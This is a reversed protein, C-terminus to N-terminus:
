PAATRMTMLDPQIGDWGAVMSSGNAAPAAGQVHEAILVRMAHSAAAVTQRLAQPADPGARQVAVGDVIGAISEASAFCGAQCEINPCRGDHLDALAALYRRREERAANAQDPLRSLYLQLECRVLPLPPDRDILSLLAEGREALGLDPRPGADAPGALAEIMLDTARTLVELLLADKGRFFYHLTALNVGAAEALKRTTAQGAGERAVVGLAASVIQAHRDSPRATMTNGEM